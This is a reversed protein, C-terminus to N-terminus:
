ALFKELFNGYIETRMVLNSTWLYYNQRLNKCCFLGIRLSIKLIKM